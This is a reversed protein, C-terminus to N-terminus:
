LINVTKDITAVKNAQDFTMNNKPDQVTVEVDLWAETFYDTKLHAPDIISIQVGLIVIESIVPDPARKSLEILRALGRLSIKGQIIAIKRTATLIGAM